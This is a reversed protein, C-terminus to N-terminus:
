PYEPNIESRITEAFDKIVNNLGKKDLSYKPYYDKLIGNLWLNSILSVGAHGTGIVTKSTLKNKNLFYNLNAQIFNLSLSTGLHGPNYKKLDKEEIVDPKLYENLYMECLVIYNLNYFYKKILVDEQM